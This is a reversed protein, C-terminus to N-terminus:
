ILPGDYEGVAKEAIQRFWSNEFLNGYFMLTYRPQESPNFVNHYHFSNFIYARGPEYRARHAKNDDHLEPPLRSKVNDKTTVVYEFGDPMTIPIQITVKAPSQQHDATHSHWGLNRGPPICMIRIPTTHYSGIVKEVADIMHQCKGGIGTKRYVAPPTGTQETMGNYGSFTEGVLSLGKWSDKYFKKALGSAFKTEYPVFPFTEVVFDLETNLDEVDCQVNLDLHPIRLLTNIFDM